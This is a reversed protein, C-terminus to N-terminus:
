GHVQLVSACAPPRQSPIPDPCIAAGEDCPAHLVPRRGTIWHGTANKSWGLGQLEEGSLCRRDEKGIRGTRHRDFAHTSNFYLGCTQCRCKDSGHPLMPDRENPSSM